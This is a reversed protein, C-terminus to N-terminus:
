LPCGTPHWTGPVSHSPRPLPCSFCCRHSQCSSTAQIAVSLLSFGAGQQGRARGARCVLAIARASCIKLKLFSSILIRSYQLAFLTKLPQQPYPHPISLSQKFPDTVQLDLGAHFLQKCTVLLTGSAPFAKFYFFFFGVLCGLVFCFSIRDM